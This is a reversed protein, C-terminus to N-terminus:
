GGAPSRWSQDAIGERKWRFYDGALWRDQAYNLLQPTKM